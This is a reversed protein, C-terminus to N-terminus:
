LDTGQFWLTNLIGPCAQTNCSQEEKTDGKCAEGGFAAAVKVGRSRFQTGGGCSKSCTTM